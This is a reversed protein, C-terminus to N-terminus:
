ARITSMLMTHQRDGQGHYQEGQGHQQEDQQEALDGGGSRKDFINALTKSMSAGFLVLGGGVSFCAVKLLTWSGESITGTTLKDYAMGCFGWVYNYLAQKALEKAAATFNRKM